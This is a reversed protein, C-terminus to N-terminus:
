LKDILEKAMRVRSPDKLGPSIEVGSNVDVAYLKAHDVDDLAGIDTVGIGGSLFFPIDGDYRDLLKWDFKVANGGFLKGKTDFLFYDVASSHEKLVGPVFESGVAFAKIVTIGADRLRRCDDAPEHGHLQAIRSGIRSLGAKINEVSENVFVGVPETDKKLEPLSFHAGVFRPSKPYFIFGMYDPGIAGIERINGADRMGCVKLKISGM